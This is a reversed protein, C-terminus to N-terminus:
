KGGLAFLADLDKEFGQRVIGDEYFTEEGPKAQAKAFDNIHIGRIAQSSRLDEGRVLAAWM